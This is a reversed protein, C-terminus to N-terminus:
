ISQANAPTEGVLDEVFIGLGSDLMINILQNALMKIDTQAGASTRLKIFHRIERLNASWVFETKTGNPLVSRAQEPKAGLSLLFKYAHECYEYAAAIVAEMEANTNEPMIFTIGDKNKGYNCYRQSEVSYAALRHRTWQALVDRSCTVKFTLQAHELVSEHGRKICNRILNTGSTASMKDYSQYCTRAAYEIKRIIDAAYIEDILTISPDRYNM